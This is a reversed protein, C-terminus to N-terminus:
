IKIGAAGVGTQLWASQKYPLAPREAKWSARARRVTERKAASDKTLGANLERCRDDDPQEEAREALLAELWANEAHLVYSVLSGDLVLLEGGEACVVTCWNRLRGEAEAAAKAAEVAEAAAIALERERGPQLEQLGGEEQQPYGGTGGRARAAPAQPALAARDLEGNGACQGEGFKVQRKVQSFDNLSKFSQSVPARKNDVAQFAASVRVRAPATSRPPSAGALALSARRAIRGAEELEGAADAAADAEADRGASGAKGQSSGGPVLRCGGVHRRTNEEVPLTSRQHAPSPPKSRRGAGGGGSGGEGTGSGGGGRAPLMNPVTLGGARLTGGGGGKKAVGTDGGAAAAALREHELIALGQQLLGDGFFNGARAQGVRVVASGGFRQEELAFQL